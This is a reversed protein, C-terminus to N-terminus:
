GCPLGAESVTVQDGAFLIPELKQCKITTLSLLLNRLYNVGGTWREDEPLAFAIRIMERHEQVM